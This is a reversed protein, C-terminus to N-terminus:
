FYGYLLLIHSKKILDLLSELAGGVRHALLEAVDHAGKDLDIGVRELLEFLRENQGVDARRNCGLGGLLHLVDGLMLTDVGRKRQATHELVHQGVHHVVVGLQM